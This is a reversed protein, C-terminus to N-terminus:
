STGGQGVPRSATPSPTGTWSLAKPEEPHSEGREREGERGGETEGVRELVCVKWFREVRGPGDCGPLRLADSKQCTPQPSWSNWPGHEGLGPSLLQSPM